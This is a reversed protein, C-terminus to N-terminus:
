ASDVLVTSSRGTVVTSTSGGAPRYGRRPRWASREFMRRMPTPLFTTPLQRPRLFFLKSLDLM